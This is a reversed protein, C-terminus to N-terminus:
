LGKFIDVQEDFQQKTLFMSNFILKPDQVENTGGVLEIETLTKFM